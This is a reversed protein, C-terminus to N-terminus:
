VPSFAKIKDKVGTDMDTIWSAMSRNEGMDFGGIDKLIATGSYKMAEDYSKNWSMKNVFYKPDVLGMRRMIATPQQVVVSLNAATALKKFGTLAKATVSEVEDLTVGSSIDHILNDIYRTTEHGYANDLSTRVNVAERPSEFTASDTKEDKSESEAPAPEIAKANYNM